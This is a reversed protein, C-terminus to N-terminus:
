TWRGRGDVDGRGAARGNIVLTPVHCCDACDGNAGPLVGRYGLGDPQNRSNLGVYLQKVIPNALDSGMPSTNWEQYMRQHCAGGYEPSKQPENDAGAATSWLSAAAPLAVTRHIARM